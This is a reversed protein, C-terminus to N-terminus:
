PIIADIYFGAHPQWRLHQLCGRDMARDLKRAIAGRGYKLYLMVYIQECILIHQQQGNILVRRTDTCTDQQHSRYGCGECYGYTTWEGRHTYITMENLEPSFFAAVEAKIHESRIGSHSDRKSMCEFYVPFDSQSMEALVEPTDGWGAPETSFQIAYILREFEQKCLSQSKYHLRFTSVVAPLSRSSVAWMVASESAFDSVEVWEACQESSSPTMTSMISSGSTTSSMEDGHLKPSLRIPRRLTEFEAGSRIMELHPPSGSTLRPLVFANLGRDRMNRVTGTIMEEMAPRADAMVTIDERDPSSWLM